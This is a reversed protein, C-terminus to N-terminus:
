YIYAQVFRNNSRPGVVKVTVRFYAFQAKVTFPVPKTGSTTFPYEEIPTMSCAGAALTGPPSGTPVKCAGPNEAMRHVVYYISYGSTAGINVACNPNAFDYAIPSFAAVGAKQCVAGGNQTAWYGQAPIDADLAASNATLLAMVQTYAANVGVDAVRVAAQRFSINGATTVGSRMSAIMALSAMTMVLLVLLAMVLTAGRQKGARRRYSLEGM